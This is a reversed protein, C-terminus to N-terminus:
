ISLFLLVNFVEVPEWVESIANVKIKIMFDDYESLQKSPIVSFTNTSSDPGDDGDLSNHVCFFFM